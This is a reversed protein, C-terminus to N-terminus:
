FRFSYTAYPVPTISLNNSVLSFTNQIPMFQLEASYPNDRGYTNFIGFNWIHEFGKATTKTRLFSLDLRHIAALKYNNTGTNAPLPIGELSPFVAFPLTYWNGSAYIWVLSLQRKKQKKIQFSHTMTLNIAHRRDYQYPFYKNQSLGEFKRESKSYTYSLWGQTVGKIKAVLCEVGYGRGEGSLTSKEWNKLSSIIDEGVKFRRLHQMKKYYTSLKFSWHPHLFSQFNLAAQKSTSPRGNKNAIVWKNNNSEISTNDLLHVSQMMASYSLSLNNKKSFSYTLEARPQPYWRTKNQVNYAVLRIGSHLYISPTLQINDEGYIMWKKANVKGSTISYPNSQGQIIRNGNIEGATNQTFFLGSGWRIQHKINPSYSFDTKVGTERIFSTYKLRTEDQGTSDFNKLYDIDFNFESQLLTTNVFLKKDLTRNWRLSFATNGWNFEGKEQYTTALSDNDFTENSTDNGRFFSLYLRDKESVKFNAKATLDYFKIIPRVNFAKLPLDLWTRRASLIFSSKNKEIPGELYTTAMSLGMSLGGHLKQKNGDRTRIDIISSLRGGYRAPFGAVYTKASHVIEGDFVSILGFLHNANYLPVDDLMILNQDLTGGRVYLNNGALGGAVVGPLLQLYKLVDKAGMLTPLGKAKEVDIKEGNNLSSGLISTGGKDGYINDIVIVEVLDNGATMYIDKVVDEYLAITDGGEEYGIYRSKLHYKGEPLSLSYFGYENSSCGRYYSTEFVNAEILAEKSKADQIFGSITHYPITKRYLILYNKNTKFQINTSLFLDDLVIKLPTRQAVVNFKKDTPIRNKDYTFKAQTQTAILALIESLPTNQVSLTVPQALINQATMGNTILLFLAILTIPKM